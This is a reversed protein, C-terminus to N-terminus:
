FDESLNITGVEAKKYETVKREFFNAKSELCIGSMFSFPQKSNYHKELGLDVMITDAVYEIYQKMLNDNMGILRVPLAMTIFEKENECAEIIMKQLKSYEVKEQLFENYM